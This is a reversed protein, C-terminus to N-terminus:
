HGGMLLERFRQDQREWPVLICNSCYDSAKPSRWWLCCGYRRAFLGRRGQHELVELTVQGYLPSTPDSFFTHAERVVSELDEVQYCLRHFAQAFSAAVANQSVRASARASRRLAPIVADLNDDFLWEKLRAYLAAQDPVVEADPHAAAVDGPLAAFFPHNLATGVIRQGDQHLALNDLTIKPVRRQLVYQGVVPWVVRTLYAILFASGAVHPLRTDWRDRGYAMVMDRLAADAGAMLTTAEIWGAEDPSRVPLDFYPGLTSTRRMTQVLPHQGYDTPWSQTLM